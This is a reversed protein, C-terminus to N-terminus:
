NLILRSGSKVGSWDELLFSALPIHQGGKVEEYLSSEVYVVINDNAKDIMYGVVKADAPLGEKVAIKNGALFVKPFFDSGFVFRRIRMPPPQQDEKNDSM